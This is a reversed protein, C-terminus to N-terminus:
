SNSFKHVNKRGNEMKWLNWFSLINQFVSGTWGMAYVKAVTKSGNKFRHQFTFFFSIFIDPLLVIFSNFPFRFIKMLSFCRSIHKLSEILYNSVSGSKRGNRDVVWGCPLLFFMNEFPFVQNFSNSPFDIRPVWGFHFHNPFYFHFCKRMMMLNGNLCSKTSATSEHCFIDNIQWWLREDGVLVFLFM